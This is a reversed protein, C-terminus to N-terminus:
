LARASGRSAFSNRVYSAKTDDATQQLLLCMDRVSLAGSCRRCFDRKRQEDMINSDLAQVANELALKTPGELVTHRLLPLLAQAANGIWSQPAAHVSTLALIIAALAKSLFTDQQRLQLLLPATNNPPFPRTLLSLVATSTEEAVQSLWPIPEGIQYSHLISPPDVWAAIRSLFVMFTHLVKPHHCTPTYKIAVVCLTEFWNSSLIVQASLPHLLAVNVCDVSIGVLDPQSYMYNEGLTKIKELIFGVCGELAAAVARRVCDEQANSFIGQLSRLAGLHYVTPSEAFTRSLAHLFSYFIRYRPIHARCNACLAVLAYCSVEYLFETRPGDLMAKQIVPWNGDVADLVPHRYPSRPSLPEFAQSPPPPAYDEAPQVSQIASFFLAMTRKLTGSPCRPDSLSRELEGGLSQLLQAFLQRIRPADLCSIVYGATHVLLSSNDLSLGPRSFAGILANLLAHVDEERGPSPIFDAAAAVLSSIGEVLLAETSQRLLAVNSDKPAEPLSAVFQLGQSFLLSFLPSFMEPHQPVIRNSLWSIARAIAALLFLTLAEAETIDVSPAASDRPSAPFALQPLLQLLQLVFSDRRPDTCPGAQSGASSDGTDGGAPVALRIRNAITSVFFLRAEIELLGEFGSATFRRSIFAKNGRAQSDRLLALLQASTASCPKDIDLLVAAETVTAAVESRFGQWTDFELEERLLSGLPPRLQRVAAEAFPQFIRSLLPERLALADMNREYRKEVEILASAPDGTPVAVAGLSRGAAADADAAAAAAAEGRLHDRWASLRREEEVLVLVHNLLNRFFSVGLDKVEYSPHELLAKSLECITEVAPELAVAAEENASGSNNSGSNNSSSSSFVGETLRAEAEALDVLLRPIQSKALETLGLAFVQLREIDFAAIGRPQGRAAALAASCGNGYARVIAAILTRSVTAEGGSGGEAGDVATTRQAPGDAGAPERNGSAAAAAATSDELMSAAAILTVVCETSLQLTDVDDSIVGRLLAAFISGRYVRQLGLTLAELAAAPGWLGQQQELHQQGRQETVVQQVWCCTASLWSQVTRVAGHLVARWHSREEPGSRDHAAQAHVFIAEVADLVQASNKSICCALYPLRRDEPLAIRKTCLEEPLFVLLELLPLFGETGASRGLMQLVPNLQLGRESGPASDGASAGFILASSLAVCLQRLVPLPADRFAFVLQLLGDRLEAYVQSASEVSGCFVSSSAAASSGHTSLLASLQQPFGARAQAALTQAAFHLVEPSHCSSSVSPQEQQHQQRQQQLQSHKNLISICIGWASPDRQFETLYKNAAATSSEGQVSTSPSNLVFVMQVVGEETYVPRHATGNNMLSGDKPTVSSGSDFTPPGSPGPPDGMNGESDM